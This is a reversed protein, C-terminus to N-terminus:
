THSLWKPDAGAEGWVHRVIRLAPILAFAAYPALTTHVSLAWIGTGICLAFGLIDVLGPKPRPAERGPTRAGFVDTTGEPDEVSTSLQVVCEELVIEREQGQGSPSDEHTPSM